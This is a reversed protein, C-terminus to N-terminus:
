SHYRRQRYLHGSHSTAITGDSSRNALGTQQYLLVGPFKAHKSNISCRKSERFFGPAATLNSQYFDLFQQRLGSIRISPNWDSDWGFLPWAETHFMPASLRWPFLHVAMFSLRSTSHMLWDPPIPLLVMWISCCWASKRLRNHILFKIM